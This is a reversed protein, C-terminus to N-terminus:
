RHDEYQVRILEGDPTVWANWEKDEQVLRLWNALLQKCALFWPDQQEKSLWMAVYAVNGTSKVLGTAKLM